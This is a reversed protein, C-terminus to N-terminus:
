HESAGTCGRQVSVLSWAKIHAFDGIVLLENSDNSEHKIAIMFCQSVM